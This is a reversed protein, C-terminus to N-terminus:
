PGPVVVTTEGTMISSNGDSVSASITAGLINLIPYQRLIARTFKYNRDVRRLWTNKILQPVITKKYYSVVGMSTLQLIERNQPIQLGDRLAADYQDANPGYFSVLLNFTEYQEMIDRGGNAGDHMVVAWGPILDQETVGVAAWTVNSPPLVPPEPQWRPWVLTPDLTSIGAVLQQMFDDLDQGEMPKTGDSYGADLGLGPVDFQFRFLGPGPAVFGQQASTQAIVPTNAM